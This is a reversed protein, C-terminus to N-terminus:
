ERVLDDLEDLAASTDGIYYDKSPMKDKFTFHHKKPRLAHAEKIRRNRLCGCSLTRGNFLNSGSITKIKGCGCQCKWMRSGKRTGVYSIVTLGGFTKGTLDPLERSM